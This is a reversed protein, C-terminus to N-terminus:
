ATKAEQLFHVVKDRVTKAMEMSGLVSDMDRIQNISSDTILKNVFAEIEAAEKKEEDHRKLDFVEGIPKVKLNITKVECTTIGADDVAILILGIKPKHSVDDDSLAGRTVSGINIFHKGALTEVGQDMHYHGIVFIDPTPLAAAIEKYGYIREKFLMGPVPAAYLHLLCIRCAQKIHPSDLTYEPVKLNSLDTIDQYPIGILTVCQGNKEIHELRLQKLTGDAFLVGLPQDSLSNLNNGTLDHNGEIMYIPTKFQRFEKILEQNLNHSNKSPNKLNFLDGAILTADVGLKNAAMRIQAIKGLVTAKFDDIRSRPGNDSIHIDNATLFSFHTM